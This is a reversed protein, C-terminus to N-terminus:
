KLATNLKVVNKKLSIIAREFKNAQSLDADFSLKTVLKRVTAM